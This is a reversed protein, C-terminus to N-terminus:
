LVNFLIVTIILVIWKQKPSSGASRFAQPEDECDPVSPLCHLEGSFCRCLLCGRVVWEGNLIGGPCDLPWREFECQRGTYQKLCICFSGLFCTGGNYCCQKNLKRSDTIGQFPIKESSKLTNNNNNNLLQFNTLSDLHCFSGVCSEGYSFRIFYAAAITFSVLFRIFQM